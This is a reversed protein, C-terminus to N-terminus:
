VTAVEMQQVGYGANKWAATGGLVNMSFELNGRELLSKAISSRYGSTCIIALPRDKPITLISKPLESLPMNIANPVHGGDYEGPRRVDLVLLDEGADLARKLENVSIVTSEAIEFSAGNFSSVGNDVFGLVSDIGVRALRMVAEDVQTAGNALLIIPTGLEILTGAWSAFQGGLGINLSNKIHGSAYEIASRIDLIIAGRQLEKAVATSGLSLPRALSKLPAAGQRNIEVDKPFYAPVEPQDTTLMEIFEGKTMPKLAYNFQKQQGITSSRENSLHKGCLSGAGHAPFLEVDDSLKLLKEHLSDYMLGAMEKDSFGNSGVLDPRGVDGIFLTDGSFLKAPREDATDNALICISEPTHGPTELISLNITGVKLVDSDKAAIHAFAAGAKAGFVIAAGTKEALEKHGSVFDAHLHTEIIYKISLGEKSSEEIYEDVDRQPDIVAAEGGSGILYSGHALCGLYFQKFFM